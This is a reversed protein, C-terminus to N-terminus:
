AQSRGSLTAGTLLADLDAAPMSRAFQYGQGLECGLQRLVLAQDADEATATITDIFCKDIKL